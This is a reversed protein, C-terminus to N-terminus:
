ALCCKKYKKGSGCPCPDNRGIDRLTNRVPTFWVPLTEMADTELLARRRARSGDEASAYWRSLEEATNGWLVHRKPHLWPSAPNKAARALDDEFDNFVMSVPDIIEGDFLPKVLDTLETVNLASVADVWGMWANNNLVPKLEAHAKRLFQVVELRPLRDSIALDAIADFMNWRVFEDAQPDLIVDYIPQPDGDFLSAMVRPLTETISDGLIYEVEDGPLHLLRALPRYARTERWEALLHVVFFLSEPRASDVGALCAEIEAIFPGALEDRRETAAQLAARPLQELEAFDRFIEDLEM